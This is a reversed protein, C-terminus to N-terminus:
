IWYEIVAPEDPWVRTPPTRRGAPFQDLLTEAVHLAQGRLEPVAVSEWLTGRVLPGIAYLFRSRADGREVVTFDPAIRIGMDMADPQALGNALLNRLLTSRSASFRSQPGTCNIALAGEIQALAGDAGRVTVAMRPGTAAINAVSCCAIRLRGEALARSLKQHIPQAIRHRLVNWRASHRAVFDRREELSFAQWIRQTYPRMRDVIIAPNEGLRRLRECHTEVVHVLAELGLQALDVDAPPFDPYDVGKFHSQPLLGHRSIAHITGQWDLALLTVIADVATLGTGLLIINSADAPLLREWNEWPNACYGPHGALRDVGPLDAPPENGTALLVRDATVSQGGALMVRAGDGEPVIGIAEDALTTVEVNSRHDVPRTFSLALSRVYDGYLRRPMFTERLEADSTDSYETRTRLWEVFHHPHEPLASMNRAAVNLLHEPRRTGYAIGRGSPYGHNIITVRLPLAALRALNVAAMTGSFGGGIIAIHKMAPAIM